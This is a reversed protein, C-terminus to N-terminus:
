LNEHRAVSQLEQHCAVARRKARLHEDSLENYHQFLEEPNEKSM